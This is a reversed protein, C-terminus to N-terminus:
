RKEVGGRRLHRGPQKDANECIKEAQEKRVEEQKETKLGRAKSFESQSSLRNPCLNIVSTQSGPLSKISLPRRM